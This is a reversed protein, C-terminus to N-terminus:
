IGLEPCFDSKQSSTTTLGSLFQYFNALIPRVTLIFPCLQIILFQEITGQPPSPYRALFNQYRCTYELPSRGLM